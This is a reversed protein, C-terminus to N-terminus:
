SFISSRKCESGDLELSDNDFDLNEIYENNLKIKALSNLNNINSNLNKNLYHNSIHSNNNNSSAISNRNTTTNVSGNVSANFNSNQNIQNSQKREIKELKEPRIKM